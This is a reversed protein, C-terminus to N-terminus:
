REGLSTPYFLQKLRKIASDYVRASMEGDFSVQIRQVCGQKKADAIDNAYKQRIDNLTFMKGAIEFSDESIITTNFLWESNNNLEACSPLQKSKLGIRSATFMSHLDSNESRLATNESELHVNQTILTTIKNAADVQQKNQAMNHRFSPSLTALFAFLLALSLEALTWGLLDSKNM